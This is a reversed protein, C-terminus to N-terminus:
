SRSMMIAAYIRDHEEQTILNVQRLEKIEALREMLARGSRRRVDRLYSRLVFAWMALAGVSAITLALDPVAERFFLILGLILLGLCLLGILWFTILLSWELRPGRSLERLIADRMERYEKETFVSRRERELAALLARNSDQDTDRGESEANM